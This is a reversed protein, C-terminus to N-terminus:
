QGRRRGKLVERAAALSVPQGPDDLFRFLRM